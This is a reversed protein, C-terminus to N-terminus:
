LIQSKMQSGNDVSGFQNKAKRFLIQSELFCNKKEQEDKRILLCKLSQFELM